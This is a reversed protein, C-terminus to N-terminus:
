QKRGLEKRDSENIRIETTVGGFRTIYNFTEVGQILFFRLVYNYDIVSFTILFPIDFYHVISYSNDLDLLIMCHKSSVIDFYCHFLKYNM